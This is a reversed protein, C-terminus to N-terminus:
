TSCSAKSRRISPGSRCAPGCAWRATPGTQSRQLQAGTGLPGSRGARLAGIQRRRCRVASRTRAAHSRPRGAPQRRARDADPATGLASLRVAGPRGRQDAAAPDADPCLRRQTHEFWTLRDGLLSQASGTTISGRCGSPRPTSTTSGCRAMSAGRPTTRPDSLTRPRHDHGQVSGVGARFVTGPLQLRQDPGVRRDPPLQQAPVLSRALHRARALPGERPASQPSELGPQRTGDDHIGWADFM